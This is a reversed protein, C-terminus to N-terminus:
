CCVGSTNIPSQAVQAFSVPNNTFVLSCLSVHFWQGNIVNGASVSLVFM